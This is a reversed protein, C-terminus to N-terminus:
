ADAGRSKESVLHTALNLRVMNELAHSPVAPDHSSAVGGLNRLVQIPTM